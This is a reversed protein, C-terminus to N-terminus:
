GTLSARNQVKDWNLTRWWDRAYQRRGWVGYKKGLYAHEFLNLVALPAPYGATERATSRSVPLRFLTSSSPPGSGFTSNTNATTSQNTQSSDSPSLPEPSSLPTGFIPTDQRGRQARNTILLTGSAFTPFIDLDTHNQGTKVLWLWGGGVIGEAFAEVKDGLSAYDKPVKKVDSGTLTELFYSNNLLLSAYNFAVTLSPQRAAFSVLHTMDLGSRDWKQKVDLLGVNNQVESQLREWLGSQWECLIDINEKPLFDPVGDFIRSDISTTNAKRADHSPSSQVSSLLTRRSHSQSRSSCSIARIVSPGPRSM